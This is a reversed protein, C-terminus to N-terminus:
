VIIRFMGLVDATAKTSCRESIRFLNSLIFAATLSRIRVRLFQLYYSFMEQVFFPFHPLQSIVSLFSFNRRLCSALISKTILCVNIVRLLKM